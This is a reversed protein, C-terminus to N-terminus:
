PFDGYVMFVLTHTHTHTRLEAHIPSLEDTHVGPSHHRHALGHRRNERSYQNSSLPRQARTHLYILIFEQLDARGIPDSIFASHNTTEDMAM